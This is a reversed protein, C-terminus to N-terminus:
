LGAARFDHDFGFVEHIRRGRALAITVADTMSLEIDAYRELVGWAQAEIKRDVWLISLRGSGELERLVDRFALAAGLGTEYRLRTSTEDVVYNTTVLAARDAALRLYHARAVDHYADDRHRLAIWASSDVVVNRM